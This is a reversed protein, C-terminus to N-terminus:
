GHIIIFIFVPVIKASGNGLMINTVYLLVYKYPSFIKLISASYIYLVMIAWM